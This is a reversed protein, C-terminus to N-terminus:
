DKLRNVYFIDANTDGGPSKFTQVFFMTREDLTLSPDGVGHESSIVLKPESWKAGSDLKSVYIAFVGHIQRDSAFYMTKCDNNLFPQVNRSGDNIPPSLMEGNMYIAGNVVFYMEQVTACYHPDSKSGRLDDYNLRSGNKYLNSIGRSSRDSAYYVDGDSFSLDEEFWGEESLPHIKKRDFPKYSYYIDTDNKFKSKQLDKTLDGPYYSFYIVDGNASVYVDGEWGSTNIGLFMPEGWDGMSQPIDSSRIENWDNVRFQWYLFSIFFIVILITIIQLPRIKSMITM